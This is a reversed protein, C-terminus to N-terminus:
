SQDTERIKRWPLGSLQKMCLYMGEDHDGENSQQLHLAYTAMLETDSQDGRQQIQRPPPYISQMAASTM